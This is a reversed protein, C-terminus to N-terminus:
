EPPEEFSIFGSCRRKNVMKNTRSGIDVIFVDITMQFDIRVVRLMVILIQCVSYLTVRAMWIM